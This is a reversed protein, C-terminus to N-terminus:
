EIIRLSNMITIMPYIDEDYDSKRDSRKDFHATIIVYINNNSVTREFYIEESSIYYRMNALDYRKYDEYKDAYKVKKGDCQDYYYTTKDIHKEYNNKDFQEIEIYFYRNREILCGSYLTHLRIWAVNRDITDNVYKGSFYEIDINKPLKLEIHLKEITEWEMGNFNAREHGSKCCCTVL